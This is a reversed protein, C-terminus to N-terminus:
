KTKRAPGFDLKGDKMEWPIEIWYDEAPTPAPSVQAPQAVIPATSKLLSVLGLAGAGGAGLAAAVIGALALKSISKAAPPLHTTIQDGIHIGMDESQPTEMPRGQTNEIHAKTAARDQALVQAADQLMAAEHALRTKWWQGLIKEKQSAEM